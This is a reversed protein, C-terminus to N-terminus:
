ATGLIHVIFRMELQKMDKMVYEQTKLTETLATISSAGLQNLASNCIQVVSAM